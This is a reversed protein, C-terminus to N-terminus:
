IVIYACIFGFSVAYFAGRKLAGTIIHRTEKQPCIKMYEDLSSIIAKTM